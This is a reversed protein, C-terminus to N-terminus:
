VGRKEDRETLASVYDPARYGIANLKGIVPNAEADRDLRLLGRAFVDLTAPNDTKAAVSALTEVSKSWSAKARALNGARRHADGAVIYADALYRPTTTDTQTITAFEKMAADISQLASAADGRALQVRASATHIVAMDRRWSWVANERQLLPRMTRIAVDAANAAEALQGNLRLANAHRMRAIALDRQWQTNAPDLQGLEENLRVMEAVIELARKADGTNELTTALFSESTILREKWFANAADAKVLRSWTAYEEEFLARAGRLDGSRQLVSGTRNLTRALDAQRDTDQPKAMALPSQIQRAVQLHQLARPLDGNREHIWAVSSYGYAREIQYEDSSPYARSLKEAGAMYATLHPLAEDLKGQQRLVDGIWFHSTAVALQAPASQPERNLGVEALKRSREFVTMAEDLKGLGIRVEGLQNLAKSQHVLEDVSLTQPDASGAYALTREGVADLADLRGVKELKKRLDGLMFEILGEAQARRRDADARAAVARARERDLDVTYRWGGILAILLLAAIVSRRVIRQPKDLMFKLRESAEVATPRDTPALAKLRNIFSTVDGPANQVPLTEGHAVRLIVERASLGYPHPEQGTFLWQLLLGFSFMDSAPTLSDGRAQEPSMYLPTGLTIGVATALFER